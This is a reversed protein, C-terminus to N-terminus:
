TAGHGPAEEEGRRAQWLMWAGAASPVLMTVLILIAMSIDALAAHEVVHSAHFLTLLAAIGFAIWRMAPTVKICLLITPLASVCLVGVLMGVPPMHSTDMPGAAVTRLLELVILAIMAAFAVILIVAARSTPSPM